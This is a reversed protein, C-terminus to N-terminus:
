NDTIGVVSNCHNVFDFLAIMDLLADRYNALLVACRPLECIILDFNVDTPTIVPFVLQRKAGFISQDLRRNIALGFALQRPLVNASM